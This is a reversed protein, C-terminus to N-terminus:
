PTPNGSDSKIVIKTGQISDPDYVETLVPEGEWEEMDQNIAAWFCSWVWYAAIGAEMALASWLPWPEFEIM